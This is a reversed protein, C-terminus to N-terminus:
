LIDKLIDMEEETVRYHDTLTIQSVKTDRLTNWSGSYYWYVRNKTIMYMFYENEFPRIYYTINNSM